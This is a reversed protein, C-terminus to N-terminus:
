PGWTTAMPLVIAVPGPLGVIADVLSSGSAPACFTGVLTLGGMKPHTPDGFPSAPATASGARAIPVGSATAFCPRRPDTSCCVQSLGGKVDICQGNVTSTCAIGTCPVSCSAECAPDGDQCDIGSAGRNAAASLWEGYCDSKAPGGGSILAQAAAARSRAISTVALLVLLVRLIRHM